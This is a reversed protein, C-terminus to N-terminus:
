DWGIGNASSGSASVTAKVPAADWGIGTPSPAAHANALPAVAGSLVSTLFATTLLRATTSM